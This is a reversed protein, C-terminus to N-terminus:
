SSFSYYPGSCLHSCPVLILSFYCLAYWGSWFPSLFIHACTPLFVLERKIQSYIPLFAQCRGATLKEGFVQCFLLVFPSPKKQSVTSLLM